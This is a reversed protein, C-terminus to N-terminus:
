RWILFILRVLGAIIACVSSISVVAVVGFLLKKEIQMVKSEKKSFSALILSLIAVVACIVIITAYIKFIIM